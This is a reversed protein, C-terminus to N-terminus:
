LKEDKDEKIPQVMNYKEACERCVVRRKHGMFPSGCYFCNNKYQGNEHSFDEKWDKKTPIFYVENEM